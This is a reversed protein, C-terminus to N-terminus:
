PAAPAPLRHGVPLVASFELAKGERVERFTNSGYLNKGQVYHVGPLEDPYAIRYGLAGALWRSMEFHSIWREDRLAGIRDAAAERSLALVPVTAVEPELVNHGWQGGRGLLQGHDGTAVLHRPGRLADFREIIRDLVSDFYLVSNDYANRLRQERPLGRDDPWRAYRRDHAYNAEYPAHATRMVIVVFTKDPWRQEDLLAPLADDGQALFREPADERTVSVDIYRSGADNLLKSEQSSIWYTRFGAEKALRFLNTSLGRIQGVAGPERVANLILPLSVATAVGSAVGHRALLDPRAALRPTTDREYGLIGLHDSRLSDSVVLWVHRAESPLPTVIPPPPAVAPPGDARLLSAGHVAFFGFTNFSNHLANRTPGPLFANIDRYTARYPKSLLTALVLTMAAARVARRAGPRAGLATGPWAGPRLRRMFLALVAGYPLLVALPVHWHEAFDTGAVQRVDDFDAFLSALALPDLPRGFYSIHGLQVLEMGALLALVGAVFARSGSLWLAANFALLGLAFSLEFDARNGDAFPQQLLDDALMLATTALALAAIGLAPGARRLWAPCGRAPARPESPPRGSPSIAM